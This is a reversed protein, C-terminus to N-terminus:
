TKKLIELFGSSEKIRRVATQIDTENNEPTGGFDRWDPRGDRDIYEKSFLLYLNDNHFSIPLIGAGM